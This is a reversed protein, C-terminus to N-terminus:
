KKFRKAQLNYLESYKGKIKMLDKHSGEELLSGNEM